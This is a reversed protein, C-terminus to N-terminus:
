SLWDEVIKGLRTEAEARTHGEAPLYAVPETQSGELSPDRTLLWQGDTREVTGIVKGDGLFAFAEPGDDRVEVHIGNIFTAVDVDFDDASADGTAETARVNVKTGGSSLRARDYVEDLHAWDSSSVPDPDTAIFLAYTLMVGTEHLVLARGADRGTM